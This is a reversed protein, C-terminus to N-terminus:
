FINFKEKIEKENENAGVVHLLINLKSLKQRFTPHELEM